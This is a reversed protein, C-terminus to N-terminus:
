DMLCRVSYGFNLAGTTTNGHFLLKTSSDLLYWTYKDSTWWNGSHGPYELNGAPWCMGGPLGSFGSENTAGTNPANWHTTEKMKGGAIEEGGLYDQLIMFESYTPIHWGAPCLGRSDSIAYGNYLLGYLNYDSINSFKNYRGAGITLHGWTSDVILSVPDGNRYHITNLNEVMWVQSGIVITHYVNGDVDTITGYNEKLTTFSKTEGYATGASTIAFGRVYYTTNITLGSILYSNTNGILTAVYDKVTPSPTKSWCIGYESVDIGDENDIGWNCTASIQTILSIDGTIVEPLSEKKCASIFIMLVTIKVIIRRIRKMTYKIKM